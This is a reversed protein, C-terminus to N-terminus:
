RFPRHLGGVQQQAVAVQAEDDHVQAGVVRTLNGPYGGATPVPQLPDYFGGRRGEEHQSALGRNAGRTRTEEKVGAKAQIGALAM